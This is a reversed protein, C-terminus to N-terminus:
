STVEGELIINGTTPIDGVQTKVGVNIEGKANLITDQTFIVKTQSGAAENYVNRGFWYEEWGEPVFGSPEYRLRWKIREGKMLGGFLYKASFSGNVQDGAVYSKGAFTATVEFESVRYAEVRFTETAITKNPNKKEVADIRYYGLHADSPIKYSSSLSGYDNLKMSDVFVQQDQADFIKLKVEADRVAWDTNRRNRFIGKFSVEEGARYIGRDTFITGQWPEYEPNWDYSINFRYPEIGEQWESSTYALDDGKTVIVWVRPRSWEDKARLGLVGWGPSKAFGDTNTTGQWLVRNSDNRVEVSANAVPTANKLTTACVLIDDPSFKVTLGIETVQVDARLYQVPSVGSVQLLVVGHKGANLAEDLKLGITQRVNRKPKIQWQKSVDPFFGRLPKNQHYMTDSSLFPVIMERSLKTMQVDLSNVNLVSVPYMREGYSELIGHGTTMNYAPDFGGTTLTFEADKVLTQGFVDKLNNPIVVKYKTEPKFRLYLVPDTTSWEYSAMEDPITVKPTFTIFKVLEKISVQNNFHLTVSEYPSRATPNDVGLFAFSGYTEFAFS